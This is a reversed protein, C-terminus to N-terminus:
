RAPHTDGVGLPFEHHNRDGQIRAARGAAAHHIARRPRGADALRRRAGHYLLSAGILVLAIAFPAGVSWAFARASKVLWPFLSPGLARARQNARGGGDHADAPGDTDDGPTRRKRLERALFDIAEYHIAAVARKM